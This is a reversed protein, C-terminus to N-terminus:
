SNAARPTNDTPSQKHDNVGSSIAAATKLAAPESTHSVVRLLTEAYVSPDHGSASMAVQDCALERELRLRYGVWHVLPHFFYFVRAAEVTWGWVLDRRRLHALEHLLVQELQAPELSAPLSAPLVLTPRFVGCVFPSVDANTLVVRPARPLGLRLSVEGTQTVLEKDAAHADGLLVALRHCQWAVRAIQFVVVTVWAVLLWSQWSIQSLASPSAAPQLTVGFAPAARSIPTLPEGTTPPVRSALSLAPSLAPESAAPESAGTAHPLLSPLPVAMTWFPMLLLKIAVIQWLWYRVAPAARRLMVAVLAVVAVLLTSQWLIAWVLGSWGDSWANLTQISDNM